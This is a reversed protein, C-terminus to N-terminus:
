FGASTSLMLVFLSVSELPLELAVTVNGVEPNLPSDPEIRELEQCAHIEALHEPM